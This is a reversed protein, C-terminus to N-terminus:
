KALINMPEGLGLTLTSFFDWKNISEPCIGQTGIDAVSPGPIYGLMAKWTYFPVITVYTPTIPHLLSICPIYVYCVLLRVILLIVLLDQWTHYISCCLSFLIWMWHSTSYYLFDIWPQSIVWDTLEQCTVTSNEIQIGPVWVISSMTTHSNQTIKAVWCCYPLWRCAFGQFRM